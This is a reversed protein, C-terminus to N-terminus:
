KVRGLWPMAVAALTPRDVHIYRTTTNVSLHGLVDAITKLSNGNQLLRTAMTHRLRHVQSEADDFGARRFARRLAGRVTSAQIGRGLPARHHVFVHRVQTVPRAYRVYDILATTTTVPMPLTRARKSKGPALTVRGHRWDIQDLNLQAVDSTRVGLDVLCRAMAYDRKGVPSTLDFADLLRSLEDDDLTHTSLITHINRPRLLAPSWAVSCDGKSVLFSIFSKISTITAGVTVATKSSAIVTIYDSLHNSSLQVLAISRRSLWDLLELAYRRRYHRTSPALGAVDAMYHNYLNVLQVNASQNKAGALTPHVVRLWHKLAARATIKRRPFFGPCKCQTLHQNVFVSADRHLDLEQSRAQARHWSEFHVISSLYQSITRPAYRRGELFMLFGTINSDDIFSAETLLLPCSLYRTLM